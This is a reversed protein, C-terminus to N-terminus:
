NNSNQDNKHRKKLKNKLLYKDEGSGNIKVVIEEDILEDLYKSLKESSVYVEFNSDLSMYSLTVPKKQSELYLIIKEKNENDFEVEKGIKDLKEKIFLVIFTIGYVIFLLIAAYTALIIWVM